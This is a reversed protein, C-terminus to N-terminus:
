VVIMAWHAIFICHVSAVDAKQGWPRYTCLSATTHVAGRLATYYTHVHSCSATCLNMSLGTWHVFRM